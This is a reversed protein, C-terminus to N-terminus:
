ALPTLFFVENFATEVAQHYGSSTNCVFVQVDEKIEDCKVETSKGKEDREM